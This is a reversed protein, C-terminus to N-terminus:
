INEFALSEPLRPDALPRLNHRLAIRLTGALFVGCIGIFCLIELIGFHVGGDFEPMILWFLDLWHFALMWIAWFVLLRKRRKVHRSILGAFPILLHGFLLILSVITWGSMNEGVSTAGRHSFWGVEEPINAYWLLMYQSFAIYGWFFTFGFLFKGLDHFHEKTITYVLYGRQELAFLVVILTAFISVACGAFFYVGFMTSFWLPDLSMIIDWAAFTTVLAFAITSIPAFKQMRHTHVLDRSDDQDVSQKWFWIGIASWVAFYFGVRVIFFWPNLYASKEHILEIEMETLKPVASAAHSPDAPAHSETTTAAPETTAAETTEHSTHNLPQAWKYLSGNNALVSLGIPTALAGLVPISCALIEAIRRVGVSWGARTLHQILVFFIAGIGISLCFVLNILYAFFFRRFSPDIFYGIFIALMIGAGGVFLSASFARRLGAGPELREPIHPRSHM